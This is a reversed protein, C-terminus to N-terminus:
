VLLQEKTGDGAHTVQTSRSGTPKEQASCPLPTLPRPPTRHTFLSQRSTLHLEAESVTHALLGSSDPIHKTNIYAQRM